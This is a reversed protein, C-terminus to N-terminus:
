NTETIQNDSDVIQFNNDICNLLNRAEDFANQAGFIIVLLPQNNRRFLAVLNRGSEDLYGTKGGLFDANGAFENINLLNKSKGSNLETIQMQKQSTIQFIEPHNSYIYNVLKMFDNATSQNLISFGSPSNFNTESMQLEGAKENMLDIFRQRGISEALSEAADNSSVVLMAKILDNVSFVDNEKLGGSLGEATVASASIKINEGKKIEEIAIVASMLKSVSAIPWRNKDNFEFINGRQNLYKMLAAQVSDISCKIDASESIPNSVNAFSESSFVSASKLSQNKSSNETIEIKVFEASDQKKGADVKIFFSSIAIISILILAQYKM